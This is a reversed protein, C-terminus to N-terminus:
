RAYIDPRRDAVLNWGSSDGRGLLPLDVDSMVLERHDSLDALPGDPGMVHSDGFYETTWPPEAGHRNSCAIFLRHRCADTASEARWMRQSKEGFTVAPCLAIQAGADALTRMVGEFHRDYCIAVGIRGISTKFVPFFRHRSLNHAGDVFMEGDSAGYYFRESFTGLENGGQPIHTKRYSGLLEGREDIVLATNFRKHSQRDHEYIPAVVITAHKRAVDRLYDFTPGLKADEALARWLELKDLAFYPAGFLEGLLVLKAGRSAARAILQANHELNAQRIDDLRGALSDLEAVATPMDRYANTTQTLAIRVIV